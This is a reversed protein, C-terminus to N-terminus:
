SVDLVTACISERVFDYRLLECTGAIRCRIATTNCCWGRTFDRIADLKIIVEYIRGYKKISVNLDYLYRHCLIANNKTFLSPKKCRLSVKVGIIFLYLAYIRHLQEGFLRCSRSLSSYVWWGGLSYNKEQRWSVDVLSGALQVFSSWM